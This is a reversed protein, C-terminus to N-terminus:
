CEVGQRAEQREGQWYAAQWEGNRLYATASDRDPRCATETYPRGPLSYWSSLGAAETQGSFHKGFVEKITFSQDEDSETM